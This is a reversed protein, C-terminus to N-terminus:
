ACSNVANVNLRDLRQTTVDMKSILLTLTDVDFKGGVRKPQGRKNSWQYNNLTMDEILNYAEDEMKSMLTGSATVDIM